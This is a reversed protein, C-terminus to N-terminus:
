SERGFLGQPRFLLIIVLLGLSLIQKTSGSLLVGGIEEVVGVLFGGALPGLRTDMGGIIVIMFSTMTFLIGVDQSTPIFTSICCGAVATLATGIAFATCYLRKVNVGVLMAAQRNNAAARITRGLDTKELFLFFIATTALSTFFALLKPVDVSLGGVMVTKLRYFTNVTYYDTGFAMLLLNQIILGLGLTVLVTMEETADIIPNLVSWQIFYGVGFSMLAAGFLSVYPDIGFLTFLWYSAYMGIVTLTGHALNIIKLVGAIMSLSLAMLGYVGGMLLGNVIVQLFAM